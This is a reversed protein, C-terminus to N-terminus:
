MYDMKMLRMVFCIMLGFSVQFNSFQRLRCERFDKFWGGLIM